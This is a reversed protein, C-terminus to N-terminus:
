RSFLAKLWQWVARFFGRPHQELSKYYSHRREEEARRGAEIQDPTWKGAWRVEGQIIWYHSQCPLQWNGISPYLTPGGNVDEVRWESPGLPTMVKEGCGCACLHGAVGFEESMYLVGSELETPM